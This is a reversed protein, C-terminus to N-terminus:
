LRQVIVAMAGNKLKRATAAIATTTGPGSVNTTRRVASAPPGRAPVHAAAPEAAPFTTQPAADTRPTAASSAADASANAASL